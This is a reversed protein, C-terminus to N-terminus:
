HWAGGGHVVFVHAGQMLALMRIRLAAVLPNSHLLWQQQARWVLLCAEQKWFTHAATLAVSCRFLCLCAGERLMRHTLPQPPPGGSHTFGAQFWAM